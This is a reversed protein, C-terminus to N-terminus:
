DDKQKAFWRIQDLSSTPAIPNGLANDYDNVADLGIFDGVVGYLEDPRFIEQETFTTEETEKIADQINM